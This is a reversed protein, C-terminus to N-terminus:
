YLQSFKLAGRGEIDTLKTSCINHRDHERVFITLVLHLLLFVDDM